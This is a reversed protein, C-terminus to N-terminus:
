RLAGPEAADARTWGAGVPTLFYPPQVTQLRPDFSFDKALGTVLQGGSGTKQYSGYAGRFLSAVAGSFHLTRSNTGSGGVAQTDWGIVFFSGPRPASGTDRAGLALVAAQVTRSGSAPVVVGVGDGAELGAVASPCGAAYTLDGTVSIEGSAVVSVPACLSGSVSADGDIFIVGAGPWPRSAGSVWYRGATGDLVVTVATGGSSNYRDSPFAASAPASVDTPFEYWPANPLPQATGFDAQASGCAGGLPEVPGGSTPGAGTSEIQSVAAGALASFQAPGCNTFYDDNTHLPGVVLDGASSGAPGLFAVPLCDGGRPAGTPNGYRDKGSVTRECDATATARQSPPYLAPDLTEFQDFLFYDYFQRQSLRQHLRALVCRSPDGSTTADACRYRATVEVLVSRAVTRSRTEVSVAIHYCAQDYSDTCAVPAGSVLTAWGSVAPHSLYPPSTGDFWGPDRLVHAFFEDAGGEAEGRARLGSAGRATHDLSVLAVDVSTFALSTLVTICLLVLVMALGGENPWSRRRGSVGREM